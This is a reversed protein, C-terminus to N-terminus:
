RDLLVFLLQVSLFRVLCCRLVLCRNLYSAPSAWVLLDGHTTLIGANPTKVLQTLYWSEHFHDAHNSQQANVGFLNAVCWIQMGCTGIQTWQQFCTCSIAGFCSLSQLCCTPNLSPQHLRSAFHALWYIDKASTFMENACARLAARYLVTMIHMCTHERFTYDSCRTCSLNHRQLQIYLM